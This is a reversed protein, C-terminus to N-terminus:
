NAIIEYLLTDNKFKLEFPVIDKKLKCLGTGPKATKLYEIDEDSLDYMEKVIDLNKNSQKLLIVNSLLRIMNCTDENSKLEGIDQISIVVKLGYTRARKLLNNLYQVIYPNKLQKDEVDIFLYTSKNDKINKACNKIVHMWINELYILLKIDNSNSEYFTLKSNIDNGNTKIEYDFLGNSYNKYLTQELEKTEKYNNLKRIFDLFSPDKRENYLDKLCKDVITKQKVTLNKVLMLCIIQLFEIKHLKLDIDDSDFEEAKTVTEGDDPKLDIDDSDFEESYIKLINFDSKNFENTCASIEKSNFFDLLYRYEDKRGVVFVNDNQLSLINAIENKIIVSKGSGPLGCILSNNYYNQMEKPILRLGNNELYRKLGIDYLHNNTFKLKKNDKENPIVPPNIEQLINNDIKNSDYIKIINNLQYNFM